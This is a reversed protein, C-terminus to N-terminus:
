EDGVVPEKTVIALQFQKLSGNHNAHGFFFIHKGLNISIGRGKMPMARYTGEYSETM